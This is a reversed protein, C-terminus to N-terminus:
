AQSLASPRRSKACHRCRRNENLKEAEVLRVMARDENDGVRIEIRDIRDAKM